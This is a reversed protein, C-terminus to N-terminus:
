EDSGIEYYIGLYYLKEPDYNRARDQFWGIQERAKKYWQEAQKADQNVGLGSQHIRGLRLYASPYGAEAAQKFYLIAKSYQELFYHVEGQQFEKEAKMKMEEFFLM